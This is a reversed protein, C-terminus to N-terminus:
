IISFLNYLIFFSIAFAIEKKDTQQL